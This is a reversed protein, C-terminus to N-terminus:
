GAHIISHGLATAVAKRRGHVGLKKYINEMHRKVTAPSICLQDAIQNNSLEDALLRLIEQERRTLSHDLLKGTETKEDGRFASLIEDVYRQGEAYLDLGSLLRVLGPGLDFFLRIFGGSQALGLARTLLDRATSEDGQADRVLAELALVEILFRTNHIGAYFAELRQLLVAASELSTKEGEAILARALTLRPEFFSYNPEFPEPDFERTWALAESLRGQRLDLDARYAQARQM